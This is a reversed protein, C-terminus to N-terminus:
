VVEKEKKILLRTMDEVPMPRGYLYGQIHPCGAEVLFEKQERTEVGEAIVDLKLSQTIAIIAQVIAVDDPNHPLDDIFAKDIKIKHISLRKLYALSSYGTGFDDLAIEIGMASIQQLIPISIDPNRMIEGETLELTIWEPKCGSRSLMGKLLDIFYKDETQIVNINISTKGPNLGQDYWQKTHSMAMFMVQHNIAVVMGLEAALPIFNAPSIMGGSSDPWRVLAEVGVISNTQTNYQPQYYVLFEKNELARRIESQMTVRKYIKETMEPTYFHYNNRGSLKSRYMAIDAHKILESAETADDPYISIGISCSIHSQDENMIIPLQLIDLIKQALISPSFDGHFNSMIITFEDGGLRALTDEERIVSHLRKAVKQLLKDGYGHGFTDNVEKFQDLDIFLLAFKEHQRKAKYISQNLRDNFLLRNPLDTLADHTAQFSLVNKQKNLQAHYTNLENIMHKFNKALDGIEDDNFSPIDHFMNKTNIIESTIADLQSIPQLISEQFIKRLKYTLAFAFILILVIYFSNILMRLYFDYLSAVVVLHGLQVSEDFIPVVCYYFDGKWLNKHEKILAISQRKQLFDNGKHFAGILNWSTDLAFTQRIKDNYEVSALVNSIEMVDNKLISPRINDALIKAFTNAEQVTGKRENFYQLSFLLIILTAGVIIATSANLFRLKKSISLGYYFQMLRKFM